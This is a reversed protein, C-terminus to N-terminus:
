PAPTVSLTPGSATRGSGDTVTLQLTSTQHPDNGDVVLNVKAADGYSEPFPSATTVVLDICGGDDGANCTSASAGVPELHTGYRPASPDVALTWRFSQLGDSQGPIDTSGSSLHCSPTTDISTDFSGTADIVYVGGDISGSAVLMTPEFAAVPDCNVPTYAAVIVPHDPDGPADSPIHLTCRAEGGIHADRQHSLTWTSAGGAALTLPFGMTPAEADLTFRDAGTADVCPGDGGDDLSGQQTLFPQQILAASSGVNSVDFTQPSTFAGPDTTGANFSVTVPAQIVAPSGGSLHATLSGQATSVVLSAQAYGNIPHFTVTLAEAGAGALDFPPTSPESVTFVGGDDGEIGVSLIQVPANGSNSLSFAGQFPTGAPCTSGGDGEFACAGPTLSVQAATGQGTVTVSFTDDPLAGGDPLFGRQQGPDPVGNTSVLVQAYPANLADTPTFDLPLDVIDGTKVTLPAEPTPLTGHFAFASGGDPLVSFADPVIQIGTILLPPCGGNAVHIVASGTAGVATDAFTLMTCTDGTAGGDPGECTAAYTPQPALNQGIGTLRVNVTPADPDDTEIVVTASQNGPGTPAFSLPLEVQDRPAIALPVTPAPTLAFSAANAGSLTVSSVTLTNQGANEIFFSGKSPDVDPSAVCAAGFALLTDTETADTGNVSLVVV